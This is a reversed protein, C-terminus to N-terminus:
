AHHIGSLIPSEELRGHNCADAQVAVTVWGFDGPPRVLLRTSRPCARGVTLHNYAVLLSAFRGHGLVVRNPRQNLVAFGGHVVRTPLPGHASALRLGAYGRLWCSPGVNRLTISVLIAGAAGSSDLVRGRLQASRCGSGLRVASSSAVVVVLALLVVGM